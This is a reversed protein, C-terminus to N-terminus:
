LHKRMTLEAAHCQRWGRFDEGCGLAAASWLCMAAAPSEAEAIMGAPIARASVHRVEQHRDIVLRSM